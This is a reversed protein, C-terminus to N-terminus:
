LGPIGGEAHKKCRGMVLLSKSCCTVLTELLEEMCDGFESAHEGAGLYPGKAPRIFTKTNFLSASMGSSEQLGGIVEGTRDTAFADWFRKCICM